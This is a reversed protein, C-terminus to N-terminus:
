SLRQADAVSAAIVRELKGIENLIDKFFDPYSKEGIVVDGFDDVSAAEYVRRLHSLTSVLHDLNDNTRM